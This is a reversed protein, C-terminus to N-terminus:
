QPTYSRFRDAQPWNRWARGFAFEVDMKNSTVAIIGLSLCGLALGEGVTTEQMAKTMGSTM